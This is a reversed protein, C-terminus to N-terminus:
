KQCLNERQGLNAGMGLAESLVFRIPFKNLNAVGAPIEFVKGISDILRYTDDGEHIYFNIESM